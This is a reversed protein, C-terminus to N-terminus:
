AAAKRTSPLGNAAKLFPTGGNRAQRTVLTLDNWVARQANGMLDAIESRALQEAETADTVAVRSDLWRVALEEPVDVSEPDIDPHLQRIAQYTHESGDLLPAVGAKLSDMFVRAESVLFEIRDDDREILHEVFEMSVDAVVYCRRAGTVWLEWQVQDYYGVPVGGAWEWSLRSTKAQVLNGFQSGIESYIGDPTAGAWGDREAWAGPRVTLEPHQDAFWQLLVPELYHGYSMVDTQPQPDLDGHMRHWLSFRSEYPSTGVVAAIKSATMYKLWEPSGPKPGTV